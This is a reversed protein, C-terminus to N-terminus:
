GIQTNRRTVQLGKRQHADKRLTRENWECGSGQSEHQASLAGLRGRFLRVEGERGVHHGRRAPRFFCLCITLYIFYGSCMESM